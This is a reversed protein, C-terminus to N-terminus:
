DTVRSPPLVTGNRHRGEPKPSTAVGKPLSAILGRISEGTIKTQAGLKRADLQKQKILEYIKTPGLDGLLLGTYRVSNLPKIPLLPFAEAPADDRTVM